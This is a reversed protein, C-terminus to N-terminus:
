CTLSGASRIGSVQHSELATEVHRRATTQGGIRVMPVMDFEIKETLVVHCYAEFVVGSMRRTSPLGVYCNFLNVLEHRQLARMRAAIKSAVFPTIIMIDPDLSNVAADPSSRKLMYMKHSVADLSLDEAFSGVAELYSLTLGRLAKDLGKRHWLLSNEDGFCLRPTPGLEDFIENITTLSEAPTIKHIEARSWPNMVCLARNM